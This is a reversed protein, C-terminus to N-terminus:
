RGVAGTRRLHILCGQVDACDDEDVAESRAQVRMHVEVDAHDIPHKLRQRIPAYIKVRCATQFLSGHSLHLGSGAGADQAGEDPAAQDLAKIGLLHQGVLVAAERDIGADANLGGVACPQIPETLPGNSALPKSTTPLVGASNPARSFLSTAFNSSMTFFDPAFTSQRSRPAPRGIGVGRAGDFVTLLTLDFGIADLAFLVGIESPTM